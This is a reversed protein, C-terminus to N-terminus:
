MSGLEFVSSPGRKVVPRWTTVVRQTVTAEADPDIGALRLRHRENRQQNWQKRKAKTRADGIAKVAALLDPHCWMAVTYGTRVCCVLGDRTVRRLFVQTSRESRLGLLPVLEATSMARKKLLDITKIKRAEFEAMIRAHSGGVIVRKGNGEKM